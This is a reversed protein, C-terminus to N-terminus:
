RQMAPRHMANRCGCSPKCKSTTCPCESGTCTRSHLVAGATEIGTIPSASKENWNQSSRNWYAIVRMNPKLGAEDALARSVQFDWERGECEVKISTDGISKIMAEVREAKSKQAVISPGATLMLLVATLWVRTYVFGEAGPTIDCEYDTWLRNTSRTFYPATHTPRPSTVRDQWYWDELVRSM